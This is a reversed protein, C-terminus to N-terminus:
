SPGIDIGAGLDWATATDAFSRGLMAAAQVAGGTAVTEDADPVRISAGILDALIQRYAPSRAGGGILHVRGDVAAGAAALAERGFLLGRLVGEHAARALDASTTDNRLGEFRGTADPLNPTREGDFYPTLRAGHAGAPADLAAAAFTEHDMGLWGAVTDTVKTANLTCVLPLYGGTADAFGAVAGSPDATPTPSAAYVVGSTGLSLAVDGTTLGLGLAAAMNDGSGPGVPIGEPVGLAAAAEGTVTGLVETPGLVTPVLSAWDDRGGVLELLEAACEGTQADFWGSGSADGRDTAHVGTLRLNLYDHPLLVKAIRGVLDPEHQVLWALKSITFSAVPVSGVRAAWTEAGVAETLRTAEAASETDNWLKAPRLPRNDADLVVMGHQQGGVGIAAVQGAVSGVEGFADVLAAWWANPDQESRPPSTPPHAGRGVAIVQGSDLDRIEVKCSQTSSDVGAVFPM